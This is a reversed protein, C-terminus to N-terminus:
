ASRDTEYGCVGTAGSLWEPNRSLSRTSGRGITGGRLEQEAFLWDDVDHGDRRGRAEYLDYALRAIEDRTPGDGSGIYRALSGEGTVRAVIESFTM